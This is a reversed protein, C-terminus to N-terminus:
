NARTLPGTALFKGSKKIYIVIRTIRNSGPITFGRLFCSSSELYFQQGEPTTKPESNFDCVGGLKAVIKLYRLNNSFVIHGTADAERFTYTRALNIETISTM